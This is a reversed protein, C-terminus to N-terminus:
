TGDARLYKKLRNEVSTMDDFSVTDQLTKNESASFFMKRLKAASSLYVMVDSLQEQELVRGEVSLSSIFLDIEPFSLDPVAIGDQLLKLLSNVADTNIKWEDLSDTFQQRDILKEGGRGLCYSKLTNKIKEFELIEITHNEM